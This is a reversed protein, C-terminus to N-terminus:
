RGWGLIRKPLPAPHCPAAAQFFFRGAAPARLLKQLEETPTIAQEWGALKTELLRKITQESNIRNELRSHIAKKIYNPENGHKTPDFAFFRHVFNREIQEASPSRLEHSQLNDGLDSLGKGETSLARILLDGPVKSQQTFDKFGVGVVTGRLRQKLDQILLPYNFHFSQTTRHTQTKLMGQSSIIQGAAEFELIARKTTFKHGSKSLQAYLSRYAAFPERFCLVWTVNTIGEKQLTKEIREPKDTYLDYELNEASILLCGNKGAKKRTAKILPKLWNVEAQNVLHNHHPVGKFYPYHIQQKLLEKHLEYCCRQFSSTGTKHLGAHIVARM